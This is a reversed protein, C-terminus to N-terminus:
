ASRRRAVGAVLALGALMLAFQEPEPVAAVALSDLAFYAPTNIGYPGSDSSDLSFALASVSGLGTLDVQRWDTVVYDLSNDAFRYDALYFDVTGTSAGLADLGTIQLKFYDADNGSDGGFKKAFGDGNLMSQVAYTTNSFFASQVVTPAAFSISSTAISPDSLYAIAYNASGEAGGGTTASHQNTHGPTTTDTHNTYVWGSHCCGASYEKYMHTFTAAGSTFTATAEPFYHSEAALPLDDFTSVVTAAHAGFASFLGALALVSALKNM